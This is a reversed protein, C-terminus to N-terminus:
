VDDAVLLEWLEDLEVLATRLLRASSGNPRKRLPGSNLAADIAEEATCIRDAIIESVDATSWGSDSGACEDDVDIEPCDM